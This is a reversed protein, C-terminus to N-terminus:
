RVWRLLDTGRVIEMTFFWQGDEESLEGLRVLHPHRLDRIARFEQKFRVIGEPRPFRITKLAVPTDSDLDIAEYVSGQAGGGLRHLVRFRALQPDAVGDSMAGRGQIGASLVDGVM